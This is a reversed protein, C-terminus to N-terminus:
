LNVIQKMLYKLTNASDAYNTIIGFIVLILLCVSVVMGIKKKM